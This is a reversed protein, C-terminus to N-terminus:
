RMARYSGGRPTSPRTEAPTEAAQVAGRAGIVMGGLAGAATGTIFDRRYVGRQENEVSSM